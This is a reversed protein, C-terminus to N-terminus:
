IFIIFPFLHDAYLIETRLKLFLLCTLFVPLTEPKHSNVSFFRLYASCKLTASCVVQCSKTSAKIFSTTKRYNKAEFVTFLHRMKRSLLWSKENFTLVKTTNKSLSFWFIYSIKLVDAACFIFSEMLSKKLLHSWIRLFKPNPWM